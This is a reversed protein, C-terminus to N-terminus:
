RQRSTALVTGAQLVSVPGAESVAIVVAEPDDFSYRRASTHRTGGLPDIAAEAQRTPILRVGLHRLKGDVDFIAAGDTQALAHRLPALHLPENIQLEPPPALREEVVPGLTDSTRYVLLSGIGAAGLDHVAFTLLAEITLRQEVGSADIVQEVMSGVPPEHHWTYREWRVVGFAGAVRIVGGGDRQVITAGLAQSLVVLDRESGAPRDFLLWQTTDRDARLLWTSQGDAYRRAASISQGSGIVRAIRLRTLQDWTQPDASPTVVTGTTPVMREHPVPHLAEDIEELVIADMEGSDLHLGLDRLDDAIRERRRVIQTRLAGNRSSPDVDKAADEPETSASGPIV